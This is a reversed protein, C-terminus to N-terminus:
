PFRRFHLLLGVYFTNALTVFIGGVFSWFQDLHPYYFINWLGWATFFAVSAVSVGAVRRDCWLAHCHNLIALGAAAEFGGNILDPLSM